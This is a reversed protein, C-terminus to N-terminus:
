SVVIMLACIITTMANENGMVATMRDDVESSITMM